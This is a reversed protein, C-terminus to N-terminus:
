TKAKNNQMGLSLGGRGASFPDGNDRITDNGREGRLFSIIIYGHAVWMAANYYDPPWYAWWMLLGALNIAASAACGRQVRLSLLTTPVARGIFLVLALDIVGALLYYPIDNLSPAITYFTLFSLSLVVGVIFRPRSKQVLALALVVACVLLSM